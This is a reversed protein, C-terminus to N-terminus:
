HLKKMTLGTVKGLQSLREENTRCFRISAELEVVKAGVLFRYWFGQLFHYIMGPPGDLFGLQIIYRYLFYMTPGVWFPLKNYLSEKFIRKLGAQYAVTNLAGDRAFFSYRQNLQEIAERTAYRNHKDTFFTLDNMNIDAFGGKLTVTEGGWVVIHEDMWRDEVRGQNTRWVRLLRLPFRGGHRIWRGMFIHKRDFNIGVINQPLRPVTHVLEAALDAEIVEDADLRMTWDTKINSNDVGWQFQQSQNVFRNQLVRAGHRRAIEVTEDTSFSDIVVVEFAFGVVSAISREIHRAENFTLIVVTLSLKAAAVDPSASIGVMPGTSFKDMIRIGQLRNIVSPTTPLRIM